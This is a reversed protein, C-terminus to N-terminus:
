KMGCALSVKIGNRGGNRGGNEASGRGGGSATENM